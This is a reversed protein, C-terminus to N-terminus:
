SLVFLVVFRQRRIKEVQEGRTGCHLRSDRIKHPLRVKYIGRVNYYYHLKSSPLPSPWGIRTHTQVHLGHTEARCSM